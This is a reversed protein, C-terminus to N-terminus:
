EQQQIAAPRQSVPSSVSGAAADQGIYGERRGGIVADQCEKGLGERRGARGQGSLLRGNEELKVTAGELRVECGWAMGRSAAGQLAFIGGSWEARSGKKGRDVIQSDDRRRRM